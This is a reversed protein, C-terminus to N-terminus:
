EGPRSRNETGGSRKAAAGSARQRWLYNLQGNRADILVHVTEASQKDNRLRYLMEWCPYSQQASDTSLAVSSRYQRAQVCTLQKVPFHLCRLYENSLGAAEKESISKLNNDDVPLTPPECLVSLPLRSDSALLLHYREGGTECVVQEMPAPKTGEPVVDMITAPHGSLTACIEQALQVSQAPFIQATDSHPFDNGRRIFGVATMAACCLLAVLLTGHGRQLTLRSSRPPQM